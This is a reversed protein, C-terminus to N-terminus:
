ESGWLEVSASLDATPFGQRGTTRQVPNVSPYRGASLLIERGGPYSPQSWLYSSGVEGERSTVLTGNRYGKYYLLTRFSPVM